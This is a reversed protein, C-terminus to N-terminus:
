VPVEVATARVAGIASEGVTVRTFLGNMACPKDSYQTWVM